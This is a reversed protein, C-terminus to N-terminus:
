VTCIYHVLWEAFGAILSFHSTKTVQLHLSWLVSCLIKRCDRCLEKAINWRVPEHPPQFHQLNLTSASFSIMTEGLEKNKLSWGWMLTLLQFVWLKREERIKKITWKGIVSVNKLDETLKEDETFLPFSCWETMLSYHTTWSVRFHVHLCLWSNASLLNAFLCANCQVGCRWVPYFLDSWCVSQNMPPCVSMCAFGETLSIIITSFQLQFKLSLHFAYNWLFWVAFVEFLNEDKRM